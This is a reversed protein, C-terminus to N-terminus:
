SKKVRAEEKGQAVRVIENSVEDSLLPFDSLWSVLVEKPPYVACRLVLNDVAALASNTDKGREKGAQAIDGRKPRRFLVMGQGTEVQYLVGHKAELEELEKESPEV